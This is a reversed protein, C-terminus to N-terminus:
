YFNGLAAGVVTSNNARVTRVTLVFFWLFLEFSIALNTYFEECVEEDATEQPAYGVIVRLCQRGIKLRGAVINADETTSVNLFISYIGKKVAIMVGGQGQKPCRGIVRYEKFINELTVVSGVRTECLAIIDPKVDRVTKM